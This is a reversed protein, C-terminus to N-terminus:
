IRPGTEARLRRNRNQSGAVNIMAIPLLLHIGPGAGFWAIGIVWGLILTLALVYNGM